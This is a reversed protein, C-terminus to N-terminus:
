SLPPESYTDLLLNTDIVTAKQNIAVSIIIDRRNKPYLAACGALELCRTTEKMNLGAAICLRLIKDRGPNKTGKIIQYYYSKEIGSKSILETDSIEKVSELSRFYDTFNKYSDKVEPIVMFEEMATTDDIHALVDALKRTTSEDM